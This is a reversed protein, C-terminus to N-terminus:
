DRLLLRGAIAVLLEGIQDSDMGWTTHLGDYTDFSTLLWLLTAAREPTVEPRLRGLESLRDAQYRMGGARVQDGLVLGNMVEPDLRALVRVRRTMEYDSGYMHAGEPLARIMGEAADPLNFLELVRDFGARMQADVSVAGVLGAMSGYTSYLTSRAVGARRAIDGMSVTPTPGALIAERAAELVKRRTEEVTDARAKMRYQRPVAQIITSL